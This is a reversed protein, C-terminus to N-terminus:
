RRESKWFAAVLLFLGIAAVLYSVTITVNAGSESSGEGASSASRQVFFGFAGGGILLTLGVVAL